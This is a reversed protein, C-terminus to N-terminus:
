VPPFFCQASTILFVYVISTVKYALFIVSFNLGSLLCYVIYLITCAAPSLKHLCLGMVVAIIIEAFASIGVYSLILTRDVNQSIGFAVAFTILLGLGLWGFIKTYVNNFNIEM